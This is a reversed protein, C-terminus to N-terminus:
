AARRALLHTLWAPFFLISGLSMVGYGFALGGPAGYYPDYNAMAIVWVIFGVGLVILGAVATNVRRKSTVHMPEFVEPAANASANKPEVNSM